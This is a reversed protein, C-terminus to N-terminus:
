KKNGHIRFTKTGCESCVGSTASKNNKTTVGELDKSQTKAKCKMCYIEMTQATTM